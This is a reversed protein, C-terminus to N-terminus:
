FLLLSIQILNLKIKLQKKAFRSFSRLFDSQIKKTEQAEFFLAIDNKILSFLNIGINFWIKKNVYRFKNIRFFM